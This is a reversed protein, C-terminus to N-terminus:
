FLKTTYRFGQFGKLTRKFSCRVLPGVLIIRPWEIPKPIDDNATFGISNEKEYWGFCVKGYLRNFVIIYVTSIEIAPRNKLKHMWYQEPDNIVENFYNLFKVPGGQEHMMNRGFTVAIGDPMIGPDKSYGKQTIM